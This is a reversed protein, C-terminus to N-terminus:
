GGEEKSPMPEQSVARQRKAPDVSSGGKRGAAAALERNQSFARKADPVAKGGSSAIERQREPTMSAFGGRKRGDVTAM